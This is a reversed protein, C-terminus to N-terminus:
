SEIYSELFSLKVRRKFTYLTATNRISSPLSNWLKTGRILIFNRSQNSHHHPVQLPQLNRLNYPGAFRPEFTIPSVIHNNLSKFVFLVSNLKIIEDLRLLKLRVFLPLTPESRRKRTIVRIIRKQTVRLGQMNTTYSSAWIINCYNLHPYVLTFYLTRAINQSIKNRLHYLIGCANSLKSQVHSIHSKWTLKFDIRLGLFKLSYSFPIPENLLIIPQIPFYFIRRTFLMAETKVVNISLKNALFWKVIYKLNTNVRAILENYDPGSEYYNADDAFLLQTGSDLVNCFDNIYILFLIPGLISGQPVGINTTSTFSQTNDYTVYYKRDRLYDSIWDLAKNRVGYHNLKTLLIQHDVCDFAKSLDLFVGVTFNNSDFNNLVDSVLKTIALETNRGRRYAYQLNSLINNSEFHELMRTSVVKELIKGMANLLCVPRYNNIDQIDKNKYLPIINGTKHISPCIGSRLSLNVLFSIPKSLIDVNNKIVKIPISDPGPKTDNLKSIIRKIEHENTDNWTILDFSETPLYEKFNNSVCPLKQALESGISAYHLNFADAIKKSDKVPINDIKFTKNITHHGKGLISNINKWTQKTNGKCEEFVQNYYDNKAKNVIKKLNNRYTIYQDRYSIPYKVFKKYLKNKRKISEKIGSTLWPVKRVSLNIKKQLSLTHNMMRQLCSPTSYLTPLRLAM